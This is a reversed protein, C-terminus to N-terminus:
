TLEQGSVFLAVSRQCVEFNKLSWRGGAFSQEKGSHLLLRWSRRPEECEKPRTVVIPWPFGNFVLLLSAAAETQENVSSADPIYLVGARFEPNDWAYRNIRYGEPSYWSYHRNWFTKGAQPLLHHRLGPHHRRLTMVEKAFELLASGRDWPVANLEDGGDYPNNNGKASRGVENGYLLMVPGATLAQTAWLAKWITLRLANVEPDDSPGRAGCNWSCNDSEGDGQNPRENDNYSVLDALTFGDHACPYSVHPYRTQGSDDSLQYGDVCRTFTSFVGPDGRWQLRVARKYLDSWVLWPEPLSAYCAGGGGASWPEAILKCQRLVPNAMIATLLPHYLNYGHLTSFVDGALDFRFGDIHYLHVYRLMTEVILRVIAPHACNVTNGCGTRNLYQKGGWLFYCTNDLLKLCVAPGQENGEATHNFVVDLIVGIGAQHLRKVMQKLQSVAAGPITASAYKREPASWILPMYNWYGWTLSQHVPMLEVHTVGLSRMREISAESSVGLYTGRENESVQPCRITLGRVHAEYIVLDCPSTKLALPTEEDWSFAHDVVVNKPTTLPEFSMEGVLADGAPDLCHSPYHFRHGQRLNKPGDIGYCYISGPTVGELFVSWESPSSEDVAEKRSMEFTKPERDDLASFVRVVASLAASNSFTCFHTGQRTKDWWAGYFGARLPSFLTTDV